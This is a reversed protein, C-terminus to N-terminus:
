SRIWSKMPPFLGAQVRNSPQRGLGSHIFSLPRAVSRAPHGGHRRHPGGRGAAAHGREVLHHRSPATVAPRSRTAAVLAAVILVAGLLGVLRSIGQAALGIWGYMAALAVTLGMLWNRGLKENM